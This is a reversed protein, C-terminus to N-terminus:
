GEEADGDAKGEIVDGGQLERVFTLFREANRSGVRERLRVMIAAEDNAWLDEPSGVMSVQREVIM